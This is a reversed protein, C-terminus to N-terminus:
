VHARGIQTRLWWGYNADGNYSAIRDADDKFYKNAEDVSLLFINDKTSRGGYSGNKPNDVKTAAIRAQDAASFRNYFDGNLYKRLTCTEWDTNAQKDNFPKKEMIDQTILLAKGDQIDLIRWNYQGFKYGGIDNFAKMAEAYKGSALLAEAAPYQAARLREKAEQQQKEEARRAAEQKDRKAKQAALEKAQAEQQAALEKAQIAQQAAQAKAQAEQAAAQKKIAAAHQISPIIPSYLAVAGLMIAFFGVRVAVLASRVKRREKRELAVEDTAMTDANAARGEMEQAWGDADPLESVSRFVAAIRRCEAAAAAISASSRHVSTLAEASRVAGDYVEQKRKAELKAEVAQSYGELTSKFGDDAFRLAKQFNSYETLRSGSEALNEERNIKLVAM